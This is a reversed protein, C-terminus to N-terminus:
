PYIGTFSIPEKDSIFAFHIHQMGKGRCVEMETCGKWPGIGSQWYGYLTSVIKFINTNFTIDIAKGSLHASILSGGIKKNVEDSRFASTITMTLRNNNAWIDLWESLALIEKICGTMTVNDALKM